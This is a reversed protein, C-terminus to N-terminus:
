DRDSPARGSPTTNAADAQPNKVTLVPCPASRVVKEAVSGMLLRNLMGTRGHTGMVILDCQAAHAVDLIVEAPEGEEM